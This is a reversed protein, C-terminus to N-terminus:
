LLVFLFCGWGGVRLFVFFFHFIFFNQTHRSNFGSILNLQWKAVLVKIQNKVNIKIYLSIVTCICGLDSWVRGPPFFVRTTREPTGTPSLQSWNRIWYQIHFTSTLRSPRVHEVLCHLNNRNFYFKLICEFPHSGNQITRIIAGLNDSGLHSGDMWAVVLIRDCGHCPIQVWANLNLDWSMDVKLAQTWPRPKIISDLQTNRLAWVSEIDSPGPDCRPWVRIPVLGM